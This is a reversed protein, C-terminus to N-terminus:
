PWGPIAGELVSGDVLRVESPLEGDGVVVPFELLTDQIVATVSPVWYDLNNALLRVPDDKSFASLGSGSNLRRWVTSAWATSLRQEFDVPLYKNVDVGSTSTVPDM